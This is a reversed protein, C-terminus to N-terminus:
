DIRKKVQEQEEDDGMLDLEADLGWAVSERRDHGNAEVGAVTRGAEAREDFDFFGDPGDWNDASPRGPQVVAAKRVVADDEADDVLRGEATSMRRQEKVREGAESDSPVASGGASALLEDVDDLLGAELDEEPIDTTESVYRMTLRYLYWSTAIGLITGGVMFIGNIWRTTSDMKHRSAPDAFLYTRHGIFVHLLLKPTIALTALMFESFKVSEVSAFFLNSYPYPFPCLRLLTILPLGKVRVARSLAAFTKDRQIFPAFLTVLKRCLVFAFAGGLLCSGASIYFGPTVGYAFGVLTQATGYGILPPVSTVVIIASLILWGHPLERVDDALSAFWAFIREPGILWFLGGFLVHLGAWAWVMAKGKWGLKRYREVAKESFEVSRALAQRAYDMWRSTPDLHRPPPSASPANGSPSAFTCHGPVSRSPPQDREQREGVPTTTVLDRDEEEFQHLASSLRLRRSSAALRLIGKEVWGTNFVEPLCCRLSLEFLFAAPPPLAFLTLVFPSSM